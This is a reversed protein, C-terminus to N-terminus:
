PSPDPMTPPRLRLYVRFSLPNAGYAAALALDQSYATADAGVGLEYRDRPSLDYVGGLTLANVRRIFPDQPLLGLRDVLEYRGYLHLGARLDAQSELGYSQLM